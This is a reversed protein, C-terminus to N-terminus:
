VMTRLRNAFEPKSLSYGRFRQSYLDVSLYSLDFLIFAFLYLYGFFDAISLILVAIKMAFRHHFFKEVFKKIPKNNVHNRSNNLRGRKIRNDAWDNGIEDLIGSFVLIGLPLWYIQLIDHFLIPLFILIGTGIYFAFNDIKKTIAVIMFISLFITTSPPDMIILLAMLSALPVALINARTKSFVELDYAQDIYKMGGGLFAYSLFILLSKVVPDIFIGDLSTIIENIM